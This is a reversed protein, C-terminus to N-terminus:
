NDPEQPAPGAAAAPAPSQVPTPPQAPAPQAPAPQVPTPQAPAPQPQVPPQEAPPSVEAAPPTPTQVPPQEGPETAAPEEPEEPKEAAAAAGTGLKALDPPNYIYIIGFVEVNVYDHEEEQTTQAGGVAGERVIQPGRSRGPTPRMLPRGGGMAGRAGGQEGLAAQGGQGPNIRVRVVEVPMASNACDVLLKPIRRQHMFLDMHVMMMKFEAYPPQNEFQYASLPQGNEDVYRGDMLNVVGQRGGFGRSGYGGAMEDMGGGMDMGGEMGMGPAGEVGGAMGMSEGAGAGAAVQPEAFIPQQLSVWAEAAPQGIELANIRKIWAKEHSEVGQNVNSVIRLLAEYVWLDEQALLVQQTTPTQEWGATISFIEPQTWEVLGLWPEPEAATEGPRTPRTPTTRRVGMDEALGAAGAGRGRREGIRGGRLEDTYQDLPVDGPRRIDVLRLLTPYHREIFNLYEERFLVRMERGPRLNEFEDRFRKSLVEPLPNNEKQQRYLVQWGRLVEDKQLLHEQQTAEVGKENRLSPNGLIQRVSDFHGDIEGKRKEYRSALDATAWTWCLMAVLVALICLVWFHYKGLLALALKVKDM